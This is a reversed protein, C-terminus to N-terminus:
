YSSAWEPMMGPGTQNLLQIYAAVEDQSLQQDGDGMMADLMYRMIASMAFVTSNITITADDLDTFEILVDITGPAAPVLSFNHWYITNEATVNIPYFQVYYGDVFAILLYTSKYTTPARFYGTQSHYTENNEYEKQPEMDKGVFHQFDTDLVLIMAGELIEGTVSSTVNGMIYSYNAEEFFPSLLIDLNIQDGYDANYSWNGYGVYGPREVM